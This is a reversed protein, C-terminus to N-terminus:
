PVVVVLIHEPQQRLATRYPIDAQMVVIRLAFLHQAVFFIRHNAHLKGLDAGTRLHNGQRPGSFRLAM